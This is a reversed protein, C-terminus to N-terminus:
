GTSRRTSKPRTSDLLPTQRGVPDARDIQWRCYSGSRMMEFGLDRAHRVFRLRRLADEGYMRRGGESRSPKPLLGISEYYRITPIKVKALSSLGGITMDHTM